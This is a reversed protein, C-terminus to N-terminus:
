IQSCLREGDKHGQGELSATAADVISVAVGDGCETLIKQYSPQVM